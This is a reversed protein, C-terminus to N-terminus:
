WGRIARAPRAGRTAFEVDPFPSIRVPDPRPNQEPASRVPIPSAGLLSDSPSMGALKRRCCCMAPNTVVIRRNRFGITAATM